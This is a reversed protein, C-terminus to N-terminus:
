RRGAPGALLGGSAYLRVVLGPLAPSLGRNRTLYIGLLFFVTGGLRNLLMGAWLVWYARALGLPGPREVPKAEVDNVPTGPLYIELTVPRAGTVDDDQTSQSMTTEPLPRLGLAV